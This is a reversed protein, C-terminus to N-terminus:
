LSTQATRDYDTVTVTDGAQLGQAADHIAGSFVWPHFRKIAEEKGPNLRIVPYLPTQEM